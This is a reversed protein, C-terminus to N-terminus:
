GQWAALRGTASTGFQAAVRWQWKWRSPEPGALSSGGFSSSQGATVQVGSRLDAVRTSRLVRVLSSTAAQFGALLQQEVALHEGAAVGRV